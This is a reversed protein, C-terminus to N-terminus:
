AKTTYLEVSFRFDWKIWVGGMNQAKIKCALVRKKGCIEVLNVQVDLEFGSRYVDRVAM